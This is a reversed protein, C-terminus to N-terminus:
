TNMVSYVVKKLCHVFMLLILLIAILTLVTISSSAYIGNGNIAAM